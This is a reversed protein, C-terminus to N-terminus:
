LNWLMWSKDSEGSPETSAVTLSSPWRLNQCTLQSFSSFFSCGFHTRTYHSCTTTSNVFGCTQAKCTWLLVVYAHAHIINYTFCMQSGRPEQILLSCLFMPFHAHGVLSSLEQAVCQKVKTLFATWVCAIHLMLEQLVYYYDSETGVISALPSYFKSM